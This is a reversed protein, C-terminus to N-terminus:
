YYYFFFFYEYESFNQKQVILGDIGNVAYDVSKTISDKLFPSLGLAEGTDREKSSRKIRSGTPGRVSNDMISEIIKKGINMDLPSISPGPGGFAVDVLACILIAKFMKKKKGSVNRPAKLLPTQWIRRFFAVFKASNM